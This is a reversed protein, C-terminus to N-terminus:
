KEPESPIFWVARVGKDLAIQVNSHDDDILLTTNRTIEVGHLRQFQEAAVELDTRQVAFRGTLYAGFTGSPEFRSVGHADDLGIDNAGGGALVSLLLLASRRIRLM